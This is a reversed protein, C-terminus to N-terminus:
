EIAEFAKQATEYIEHLPRRHKEAAARCSEYEPAFRPVGDPLRGIKGAITGWPTEVAHPERKLVRRAVTARRIGLTPTERFLIEEMKAADAPRCLVSLLVGPRDKKMGIATTYVELAGSQRLREICYGVIEGSADDLATELQCVRDLAGFEQSEAAEGLMLRLINPRRPLDRSGAGYGIARITMAPVPGFSEALAALIAAGTPTTLEGAIDSPALPIGKLLEAAAPAPVACAGHGIEITGSGAPLPSAVLREVGLLELGVVAGVIDALSDAAGIEHFHVNEVSTGHVKAEAEALRLFIQKAQRKARPTLRGLEIMLSIDHLTRPSDEAPCDVRAQLARFGQRRTEEVALSCGGMGLSAISANIPELGAGADLIAALLMDGSIGTPCDLYALKPM